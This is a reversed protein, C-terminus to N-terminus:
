DAFCLGGIVGNGSLYGEPTEISWGTDDLHLYLEAGDWEVLVWHANDTGLISIESGEPLVGCQASGDMDSYACADALVTHTDKTEGTAYDFSGHDDIFYFDSPALALVGSSDARYVARGYWTQLVSMRLIGTVSGRGDFTVDGAANRGYYILGQVSGLYEIEGDRYRFFSTTYDDSPGWDQIAIELSGDEATLDVIAYWDPDPNTLGLLADSYDVGDIELTASQWYGSENQRVNVLVTEDKPELGVGDLDVTVSEGVPLVYPSQCDYVLSGTQPKEHPTIGRETDIDTPSAPDPTFESAPAPSDSPDPLISAEGGCACLTFVLLLAAFLAILKKM